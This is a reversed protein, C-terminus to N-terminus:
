LYFMAKLLCGKNERINIDPLPSFDPRSTNRSPNYYADTFGSLNFSKFCLLGGFPVGVFHATMYNTSQHSELCSLLRM